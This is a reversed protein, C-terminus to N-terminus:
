MYRGDEMFKLFRAPILWNGNEDILGWLRGSQAKAYSYDYAFDGADELIYDATM